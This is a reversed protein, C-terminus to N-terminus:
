LNVNYLPLLFNSEYAVPLCADFASRIELDFWTKFFHEYKRIDRDTLKPFVRNNGLIETREKVKRETREIFYTVANRLAIKYNKYVSTFKNLDSECICFACTRGAKIEWDLDCHFVTIQSDITDDAGVMNLLMQQFDEITTFKYKGTKKNMIFRGGKQLISEIAPEGLIFDVIYASYINWRFESLNTPPTKDIIKVLNSWTIKEAYYPNTKSLSEWFFRMASLKGFSNDGCRSIIDLIFEDKYQM